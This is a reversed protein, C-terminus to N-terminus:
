DLTRPRKPKITRSARDLTSRGLRRPRKTRGPSVVTWFLAAETQGLNRWGEVRESDTVAGRRLPSGTDPRRSPRARPRQGPRRHRHRDAPAGTERADLHVLDVRRNAFSIRGDASPNCRTWPRRPTPPPLDSSPHPQPAPRTTKTANSESHQRADTSQSTACGTARPTSARGGAGKRRTARRTTPAALAEGDITATGPAGTVVLVNM